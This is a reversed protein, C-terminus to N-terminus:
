YAVYGPNESYTNGGNDGRNIGSIADGIRQVVGGNASQNNGGSAGSPNPDAPQKYAYAAAAADSAANPSGSGKKLSFDGWGPDASKGIVQKTGPTYGADGMAEDFLNDVNAAGAGVSGVTKYKANNSPDIVKFGVQLPPPKALALFALPWRQDKIEQAALKGQEKLDNAAQNYAPGIRRGATEWANFGEGNPRLATNPADYEPLKPM